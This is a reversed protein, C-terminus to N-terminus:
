ADYEKLAQQYRFFNEDEQASTTLFKKAKPQHNTVFVDALSAEHERRYARALAAEMEEKMKELLVKDGSHYLIAQRMKVNEVELRSGWQRYFKELKDRKYFAPTM